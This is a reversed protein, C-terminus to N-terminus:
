DSPAQASRRWWNKSLAAVVGLMLGLVLGLAVILSRQPKIRTDPVFAPRDFRATKINDPVLQIALLKALDAEKERLGEIFADNDKRALMAELKRNTKLSELKEQLGRLEPIFPDDSKRIELEKIQSRLAKEGQLYLPQEQTSVETYVTPKDNTAPTIKNDLLSSKEILGISQATNAAETLLQIKDLRKEKASARLITIQDETARQNVWTDEQTRIIEDKQKKALLEKLLTIEKTLLDQKLKINEKIDTYLSEITTKNAKESIKNVVTASLAADKETFSFYAFPIAAKEEGKKPKPEELLFNKDLRSFTADNSSNATTDETSKEVLKLEELVARHLTSSSLQEKFKQYIIAPDPTYVDQINLAILDAENPPLFTAKAEYVPTALLAYTIATM